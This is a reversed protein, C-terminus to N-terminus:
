PTFQGACASLAQQAPMEAAKAGSFPAHAAHAATCRRLVAMHFHERKHGLMGNRKMDVWDFFLGKVM